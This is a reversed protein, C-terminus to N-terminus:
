EVRQGHVGDPPDKPLESGGPEGSAGGSDREDDAEEASEEATDEEQSEEAEEAAGDLTESREGHEPVFQVIVRKRDGALLALMAEVDKMQFYMRCRFMQSNTDDILTALMRPRGLALMGKREIFLLDGGRFTAEVWVHQQQSPAGKFEVRAM